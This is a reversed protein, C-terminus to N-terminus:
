KKIVKWSGRRNIGIREIYKNEVLIKFNRTITKKNVDLLRALEDQTITPNDMILKLMSNQLASLEEFSDNRKTSTYAMNKEKIMFENNNFPITVRIHNPFFEFINEKYTKLVRQIGTGLQEVFDLDRFIRMLEPNRPNSFGKLIEEQTVGEQIGGNSSIVLKNDFIEFKPTYGNSWDNHVLANTVLEKVADYDFRKIEKRRTEIKTFTKNELKIKNLINDTIKVLSCFGYDENEILNYVDDGDYKAFQVSVHNNDSLLYAMYNFEKDETYLDLKKLFNDNIEFGKEEYYIKLTKFELEKMPSKINKLSHRARNSFLNLITEQNMSEVASGVRIFCSDPTMGMGKLYYPRQNGKAVVVQIYKKENKERVVVDYLGQTSPMINDKIRDKITRQLLDINNLENINGEDDVGIFINGGDTNLFAIVEKELTDNLKMKFENRKDELVDLM